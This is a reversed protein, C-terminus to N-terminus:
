QSAMLKDGRAKLYNKLDDDLDALDINRTFRAFLTNMLRNQHKCYLMLPILKHGLDLKVGYGTQGSQLETAGTSSAWRIAQEWLRFYLYWERNLDYNFGVFKNIIRSGLKFCLMFAVLDGTQSRRMLIFYTSKQEAILRFFEPTLKEFKTKGKLYTQWFLDFIEMLTTEDPGHIVETSLEVEKKSRILKKLFKNRQTSRMAAVYAEFGGKPLFVITGPYSVVEFLGHSRCLSQLVAQCSQPFDKWVIMSAGVTKAHCVLSDQLAMAVENLTTAPLLGVTGEDSCPSGIFLTRKFRLSRFLRGLFRVLPAVLPPAVLDIPVEMLFAPAIGVAQRNREILGYYFKFQAELGAQELSKYWWLGELPPPFCQEWLKEPIEAASPFWYVSIEYGSKM